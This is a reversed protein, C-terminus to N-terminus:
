RLWLFAIYALLGSCAVVILLGLFWPRDYVSVRTPSAMDYLRDLTEESVRSPPNDLDDESDHRTNMPRLM